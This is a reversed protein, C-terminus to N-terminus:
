VEGVVTKLAAYTDSLTAGHKINGIDAIRIEQHWYYLRMYIVAFMYGPANARSCDALKGPNGTCGVIIIDAETWTLSKMKM